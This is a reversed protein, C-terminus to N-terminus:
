PCSCDSMLRLEVLCRFRSGFRASNHGHQRVAVVRGAVSVLLPPRVVIGDFTPKRHCSRVVAGPRKNEDMLTRLGRAGRFAQM